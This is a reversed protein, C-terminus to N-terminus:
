SAAVSFYSRVQSIPLSRVPGITTTWYGSDDCDASVADRGGAGGPKESLGSKFDAPLADPTRTDGCNHQAIAREGQNTINEAARFQEPSSMADPAPFYGPM